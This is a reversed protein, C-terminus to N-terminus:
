ALVEQALRFSGEVLGIRKREILDRIVPFRDTKSGVTMGLAIATISPLEGPHERVARLADKAIDEYTVVPRGAKSKPTASPASNPATGPNEELTEAYTVKVGARANGNVEVDEIRLYFQGVATGEAEAPAKVQQVLRPEDKDGSLVLVSGCADFVASSGRLIQRPDKHGEKTKGAHHLVQFTAGNKESVRSLMDLCARMKSDNEDEGPTAGRLADLFVLGCGETERAYVDYADTSNLYVNPFVALELRGGLERPDIDMGLALRHYRKRTAHQGQEYDFHRVRRPTGTAFHAWLERGTAFSMAASQSIITKGSYGYAAVLAPRGPCLGLEKSLWPTPPLPAFIADTSIWQIGKGTATPSSSGEAFLVDAKTRARELLDNGELHSDLLESAFVRVRRTVECDAVLAAYEAVNDYGGKCGVLESLFEFGGIARFRDEGLETEVTVPDIPKDRGQLARMARWVQQHRPDFFHEPDLNVKRIVENRLFVAGLISQEASRNWVIKVASQGNPPSPRPGAAAPHM